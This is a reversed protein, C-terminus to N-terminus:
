YHLAKQDILRIVLQCLNSCLLTAQKCIDIDRNVSSQDADIEKLELQNSGESNSPWRTIMWAHGTSVNCPWISLNRPDNVILSGHKIARYANVINKHEQGSEDPDLYARYIKHLAKSMEDLNAQLDSDQIASFLRLQSALDTGPDKFLRLGKESHSESGQVYRFAVGHPARNRIAHLLKGVTEMSAVAEAFIKARLATQIRPKDAANITQDNSLRQAEHYLGVATYEHVSAGLSYLDLLFSRDNDRVQNQTLM